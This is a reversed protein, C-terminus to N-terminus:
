ESDAEGADVVVVVVVQLLDVGLRKGGAGDVAVGILVKVVAQYFVAVIDVLIDAFFLHALLPGFVAIKREVGDCGVAVADIGGQQAIEVAHTKCFVTEAHGMQLGAVDGGDLFANGVGNVYLM